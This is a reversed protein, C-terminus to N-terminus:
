ESEKRHHDCGIEQSPLIRVIRPYFSQGGSIKMDIIRLLFFALMLFFLSAIIPVIGSSFRAAAFYGVMMAMIPVIWVLFSSLVVKGPDSVFEVYDGPTVGCEDIALIERDGPSGLSCHSRSMCGGCESHSSMRIRARGSQRDVSSVIGQGNM